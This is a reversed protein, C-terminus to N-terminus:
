TRKLSLTVTQGAPLNFRGSDLPKLALQEDRHVVLEGVAGPPLTLRLTRAGLAGQGSVGIPGRPTQVQLSLDPLDALQPRIEYRAFGPAMPRVGALSM